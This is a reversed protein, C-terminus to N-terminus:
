SSAWTQRSALEKKARPIYTQKFTGLSISKEITSDKAFFKYYIREDAFYISYDKNDIEIDKADSHEKIFARCIANASQRMRDPRKKLFNITAQLIPPKIKSAKGGKQGRKSPSEFIETQPKEQSHLPYLQMSHPGVGVAELLARRSEVSEKDYVPCAEWDDIFNPPADIKYVKRFDDGIFTKFIIDRMVEECAEYKRSYCFECTPMRCDRPNCTKRDETLNFDLEVPADGELLFIILYKGRKASHLTVRKVGNLKSAWENAFYELWLRDLDKFYDEETM